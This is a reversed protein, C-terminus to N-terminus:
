KWCSYLLGHTEFFEGGSAPYAHEFRGSEGELRDILTKSASRALEPTDADVVVLLANELNPFIKAFAEQNLRSPLDEALLQVNDSNIGLYRVAGAGAIVAVVACLAIVPVARRRSFDVLRSLLPALFQDIQSKV